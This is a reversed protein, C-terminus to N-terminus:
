RRAKEIVGVLVATAFLGFGSVITYAGAGPTLTWLLGEIGSPRDAFTQIFISTAFGALIILVALFCLSATCSLTLTLDATVHL